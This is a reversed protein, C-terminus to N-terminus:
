AKKRWYELTDKLAQRITFDQKWGTHNRLKTNDGYIIENDIPRLKSSDTKIEINKSSSLSILIDLLDSIRQKEGSCINYVDGAKGKNIIFYYAKVVDRVDLFDRYASLNGVYIVPERLGKEIEAIQKAFDSCVFMDSQGPGIHNFSRSVYVPIRYASFYTTAFFDFAAKSIAYPNTPLIKEEETIASGTDKMIGYEEATCVALFKCIAYSKRISELINVGGFVNIRFTDVPNIWSQSVSAQAALHYVQEPKFEKIAKDVEERCTLDMNILRINELSGGFRSSFDATNLDIGLIEDKDGKKYLFDALHGGVFGNIGTILIRL